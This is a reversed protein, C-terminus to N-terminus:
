MKVLQITEKQGEAVVEMLYVGPRQNSIDILSSGGLDHYQQVLQGTATFIRVSEITGWSGLEINFEGRTPNPYVKVFEDALLDDEVGVTEDYVITVATERSNEEGDSTYYIFEDSGEANADPTFMFGGDSYLTLLGQLNSDGGDSLYALLNEVGDFDIDNSLLGEAGEVTIFDNPNITFTDRLAIPANNFQGINDQIYGVSSKERETYNSNVVDAAEWGSWTFRSTQVKDDGKVVTLAIGDSDKSRTLVEVVGDVLESTYYAVKMQTPDYYNILTWPLSINISDASWRIGEGFDPTEGAGNIELEGLNQVDNNWYNVKWKVPNWDEGDTITSVITDLRVLNKTGFTDYAKIVYLYAKNDSLSFNLALEARLLQDDVQIDSGNPLVSEGVESDYTDLAIWFDDELYSTTNIAIDINFFEFDASAEIKEIFSSNYDGITKRDFEPAVFEIVGFNQEPNTTNHWLHRRDNVALPNTIWAQKFWEDIWSFQIGGGLGAEEMNELMRITYIGQEEETMGGHDMGSYSFHASGSSTPVGFEGIILPINQYHSKLDYLYGLYSDPGYSDSYAQYGPDDSIFDPYYPYAHYSAFFGADANSEDIKSLDFYQSDEESDSLAAETPHTLPDLTPWSSFSVPSLTNYNEYEYSVVKDLRACVWAESASCDEISFYNGTFSNIAPNASNTEKIEDPYIERGIIYGIVWPSVDATYTGYAKGYRHTLVENGHTCNIVEEIETEFDSVNNYFDYDGVPEDFWVGQFLLLPNQPHELNYARLEEYFRPYHLTYTRIVNYGIEKMRVFWRQYEERTAAMEGPQTGPVAVGLNTGKIFFDTYGEGDWVSFMDGKAKYRITDAEVLSNFVTEYPKYAFALPTICFILIFGLLFKRM